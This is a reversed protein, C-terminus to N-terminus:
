TRANGSDDLLYREEKLIAFDAATFNPECNASIRLSIARMGFIQAEFFSFVSRIVARRWFMDDPQNRVFDFGRVVDKWLVEAAEKIRKETQAFEEGEEFIQIIEPLTGLRRGGFSIPDIPKM